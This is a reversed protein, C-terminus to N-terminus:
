NLLKTCTSVFYDLVGPASNVIEKKNNKHLQFVSGEKIHYHSLTNLKKWGNVNDTTVDQDNLPLCDRLDGPYGDLHM